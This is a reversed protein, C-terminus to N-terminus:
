HEVLLQPNQPHREREIGKRENFSYIIPINGRGCQECDGLFTIHMPAYFEGKCIKVVLSGGCDPCVPSIKRDETCHVGTCDKCTM